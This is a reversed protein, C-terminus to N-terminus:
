CQQAQANQQEIQIEKQEKKLEKEKKNRNEKKQEKKLRKKDEKEQKKQQKEQKRLKRNEIQGKLKYAKEENIEKLIISDNEALDITRGKLWIWCISNDYAFSVGAKLRNTNPKGKIVGRIFYYVIDVGPIIFSAATTAIFEISRLVIIKPYIKEYKNAKFFIHEDTLDLKSDTLLNVSDVNLVIFGHRHFRREAQVELVQANIIEEGQIKLKKNNKSNVPIFQIEEPFIDAHVENNINAVFKIKKEADAPM